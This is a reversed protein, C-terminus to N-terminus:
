RRGFIMSYMRNMHNDVESTVRARTPSNEWHVKAEEEAEERIAKMPKKEQSLKTQENKVGEIYQKFWKPPEESEHFPKRSRSSKIVLAPADSVEQTLGEKALKAQRRKERAREKKEQVAKAKEAAAMAEALKAAEAEEKKRQRAEKARELAALQKETRPKKVKVEPKEVVKVEDDQKISGEETPPPSAPTEKRKRNVSKVPKAIDTLDATYLQTM